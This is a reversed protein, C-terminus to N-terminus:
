AIHRLQDVYAGELLQEPGVGLESMIRQAEQTGDQASEGARLVV